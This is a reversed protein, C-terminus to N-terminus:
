TPRSRSGGIKLKGGQRSSLHVGGCGAKKKEREEERGRERSGEKRGKRKGEKRGERRGERGGENREEKRGERLDCYEQDRGGL